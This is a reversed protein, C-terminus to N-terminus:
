DIKIMRESIHLPSTVGPVSLRESYILVEGGKYRDQASYSLNYSDQRFGNYLQRIEVTDDYSVLWPRKVRRKILEAIRVHDEHNYHHEYLGKGKVYYPPDLFVFTKRPLKPIVSKIFKEADLNLVTINDAFEAIRQIRKVLATTNYRVDLKWKGSQDKGGIVGGKLIGSRNTRNLFFTAFALELPTHNSFDSYISKQRHWETITVPTDIILRNLEDPQCLVTLWFSYLRPDIDNIYVHSVYGEVLLSMAIAAGGAYVEAYYGGILKNKKILLKIYNALQGKGGPYRLPTILAHM